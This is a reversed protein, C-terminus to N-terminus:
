ISQGITLSGSLANFSRFRATSSISLLYVRSFSLLTFFISSYLLFTIHSFIYRITNTISSNASIIICLFLFSTSVDIM